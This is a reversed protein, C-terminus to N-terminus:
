SKVKAKFSYLQCIMYNKKPDKIRYAPVLHTPTTVVIIEYVRASGYGDFGDKEGIVEFPTDYRDEMPPLLDKDYRQRPKRPVIDYPAFLEVRSDM